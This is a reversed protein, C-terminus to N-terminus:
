VLSCDTVHLRGPNSQLRDSVPSGETQQFIWTFMIEECDNFFLVGEAFDLHKTPSSGVPPRPGPEEQAGCM